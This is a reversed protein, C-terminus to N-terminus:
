TEAGGRDPLEGVGIAVADGVLSDFPELAFGQGAAGVVQVPRVQAPVAPDVPALSGKGLLRVRPGALRRKHGLCGVDEAAPGISRADLRDHGAAHVVRDVHDEGGAALRDERGGEEDMGAAALAVAENM